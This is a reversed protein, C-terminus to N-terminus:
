FTGSRRAPIRPPHVPFRTPNSPHLSMRKREPTNKKEEEWALRGHVSLAININKTM